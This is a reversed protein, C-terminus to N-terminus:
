EGLFATYSETVARQGYNFKIYSMDATASVTGDDDVDAKAKTAVSSNARLGNAVVGADTLSVTKGTGSTNGIYPTIYKTTEDPKKGFTVDSTGEVEFGTITYNIYGVKSVQIDWVGKPLEAEFAAATRSKTTQVTVVMGDSQRTCSVIAPSQVDIQTLNKGQSLDVYGTVKYATEKFIAGVSTNQTISQVTYTFTQANSVPNSIEKGNVDVASASWDTDNATMVFTPSDYMNMILVGVPDITGEGEKVYATVFVTSTDFTVYVTTVDSNNVEVSYNEGSPTVKENDGGNVSKEVSVVSYGNDPTLTFELDGAATYLYTKRTNSVSETVPNTVNAKGNPGVVLTVIADTSPTEGDWFIVTIDNDMTVDGFNYDFTTLNDYDHIQVGNVIVKEVKYGNDATFTFKGISGAPKIGSVTIESSTSGTDAEYISEGKTYTVSGHTGAHATVTYTEDSTIISGSVMKIIIKESPFGNEDPTESTPDGTVYQAKLVYTNSSSEYDVIYTKGGVVAALEVTTDPDLKMGAAPKINFHYDRNNYAYLDGSLTADTIVAGSSDQLETEHYIKQELEVYENTTEKDTVSVTNMGTEPEDWYGLCSVTYQYEASGSVPYSAIGTTDTTLVAVANGNADYLKVSANNLPVNDTDTVIFNLAAKAANFNTYEINTMVDFMCDADELSDTSNVFVQYFGNLTAKSKELRGTGLSGEENEEDVYRWLSDLYERAAEIDSDAALYAVGASTKDYPMVSFADSTIDSVSKGEKLTFTYTAVTKSSTTADFPEGTEDASLSKWSFVHYGITDTDGSQVVVNGSEPATSDPDWLGIEASNLTFGTSSDFDFVDKDYRLGFTGYTGAVNNLTVEATFKTNDTEDQTVSVQYYPDDLKTITIGDTSPTIVETHNSDSYYTVTGDDSVSLYITQSTYGGAAITMTYDNGKPLNIEDGASYTNTTGWENTSNASTKTVTVTADSVTNGNNDKIAPLTVSAREPVLSIAATNNGTATVTFSVPSSTQYGNLSAKASHSTATLKATIQGSADTAGSLPTGDVTVSAGSLAADTDADKVTIVTDYTVDSNSTLQIADVTVASSSVFITGGADQYGDLSVTYYYTANAGLTTSATGSTDTTITDELVTKASDSYIKITAGSLGNGDKNQINTFSVTQDPVEPTPFGVLLVGEDNWESKGTDAELTIGVGGHFLVADHYYATFTNEDIKQGDIKKFNLSFLDCVIDTPTTYAYGYGHQEYKAGYDTNWDEEYICSSSTRDQNVGFQQCIQYLNTDTVKEISLITSTADAFIMGEDKLTYNLNDAYDTMYENPKAYNVYSSPNRGTYVTGTSNVLQVVSSDFQLATSFIEATMNYASVTLTYDYESTGEPASELRWVHGQYDNPISTISNAYKIYDSINGEETASAFQAPLMSIIMCIAIIASIIKNRHNM